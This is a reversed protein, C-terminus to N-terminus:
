WSEAGTGGGRESHRFHAGVGNQIYGGSEPQGATGRRVATQHGTEAALPLPPQQGVGPPGPPVAPLPRGGGGAGGGPVSAASPRPPLSRGSLIRERNKETQRCTDMGKRLEEDQVYDEIEKKLTGQNGKADLLYDGKGSVVVKATEKQCNLADAVVMCGSIDLEELLKQVAPIENSKDDVTEQAYTLGLEGLQASVIHLPTSCKKM